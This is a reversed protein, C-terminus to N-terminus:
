YINKEKLWKYGAISKLFKERKMAESRSSYTESYILEWPVYRRTYGSLGNNHDLIRKELNSTQGIYHKNHELNKLIYVKFQQL